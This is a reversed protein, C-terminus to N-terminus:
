VHARGIKVSFHCCYNQGRLREPSWDPKLFADYYSGRADVKDEDTYLYDVSEDGSLAEHVHELAETALSDDHDLLCIFHGRAMAIADNSAAVIGGNTGRSSIRIRNDSAALERLIDKMESKAGADDVLCWEWDEFSQNIVSKICEEFADLPPNFVPTIISFFPERTKMAWCDPSNRSDPAHLLAGAEM